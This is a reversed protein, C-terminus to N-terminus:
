AAWVNKNVADVPPLILRDIFCPTDERFKSAPQTMQSVPKLPAPLLVMARSNFDFSDSRPLGANINSPSMTRPPKHESKDNEGESRLSFTRRILSTDRSNASAPIMQMTARM